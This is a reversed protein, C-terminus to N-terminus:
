RLAGDAPNGTRAVRRSVPRTTIRKIAHWMPRTWPARKKLFPVLAGLFLVEHVDERLWRRFRWAWGLTHLYCHLRERMPLPARAILFLYERFQRFFPIHIRGATAPDFWAMRQLRSRYAETSKEPHLRYRFLPEPVEEFKGRLAMEALFNDDSQTYGGILKTQRAISARMLGYIEECANRRHILTFFREHPREIKSLPSSEIPNWGLTRGQLLNGLGDIRAFQPFCLVVSPERDLVAICKELFTPDCLDDHCQWKFYEGGSQAFVFNHNWAAGCNTQQRFYHIRRDQAAYRRCIQETRDISANDSIILEFDPFTQALMSEISTAVYQEGNYVPMGISVRPKISTMPYVRECQATRENSHHILGKAIGDWFFFQAVFAFWQNRPRFGLQKPEAPRPGAMMAGPNM